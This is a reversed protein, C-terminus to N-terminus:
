GSQYEEFLKDLEERVDGSLDVGLPDALGESELCEELEWRSVGAREAVQHLPADTLAVLGIATALERKVDDVATGGDVGSEPGTM